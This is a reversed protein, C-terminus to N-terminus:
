QMMPSRGLQGAMNDNAVTGEMNLAQASPPKKMPKRAAARNGVNDMWNHQSLGLHIGHRQQEATLGRQGCCPIGRIPATPAQCRGGPRHTFDWM